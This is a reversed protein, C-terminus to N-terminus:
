MLWCWQPYILKAAQTRVFWLLYLSPLCPRYICVGAPNLRYICIQPLCLNSTLALLYLNPAVAPLYLNSALASLCLNPALAPLYLNPDLALLYLNPALVPAWAFSRPPPFYLYGMFFSFYHVPKQITFIFMPRLHVSSCITRSICQFM